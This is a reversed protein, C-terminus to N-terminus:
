QQNLEPANQTYENLMKLYDKESFLLPEKIPDGDTNLIISYPQSNSNFHAIQFDSNQQGLTQIRKNTFTSEYFDNSDLATRDDVYLAVVVFKELNTSFEDNKLWEKFYRSKCCISAYATFTLFIPRNSKKAMALGVAYDTYVEPHTTNSPNNTESQYLNYVM